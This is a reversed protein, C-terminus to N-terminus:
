ENEQNNKEIIGAVFLGTEFLLYTPVALMLQSVIDPPTLLAALVLIIVAVYPRKDRLVDTKILNFKVALLILLPMQFMIGFALTLGAAINIFNGLGLTAEIQNTSFGASFNMVLPIIFFVCFLAGLTFLITSAFVLITLFKKEHEYLAPMIFKKIETAIFPFALIFAIVVGTKIQLIFVEMPAFYHLKTMGDPLSNNVLFNICKPAAWFGVPSLFLVAKISNLLMKRLAELHSIFTGDNEDNDKNDNNNDNNSILQTM